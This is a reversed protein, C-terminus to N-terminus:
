SLAMPNLSGSKPLRLEIGKQVKKGSIRWIEIESRSRFLPIRTARTFHIGKVLNSALGLYSVKVELVNREMTVNVISRKAKFTGRFNNTVRDLGGGFKLMM